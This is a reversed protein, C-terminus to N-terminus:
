KLIDFYLIRGYQFLVGYCNILILLKFLYMFRAGITSSDGGYEFRTCPVITTMECTNLEEEIVLILRKITAKIEWYEFPRDFLHKYINTEFIDSKEKM